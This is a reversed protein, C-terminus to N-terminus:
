KSSGGATPRGKQRHPDKQTARSVAVVEIDPFQVLSGPARSQMGIVLDSAERAKSEHVSLNSSGLTSPMSVCAKSARCWGDVAEVQSVRTTVAQAALVLLLVGTSAALCVSTGRLAGNVLRLALVDTNM